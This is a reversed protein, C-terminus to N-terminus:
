VCSSYYEQAWLEILLALISYLKVQQLGKVKDQLLYFDLTEEYMEQAKQRIGLNPTQTEIVWPQTYATILPQQHGGRNHDCAALINGM